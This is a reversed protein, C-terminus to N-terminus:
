STKERILGAVLLSIGTALLFIMPYIFASIITEYHLNSIQSNFFASVWLVIFLALCGIGLGMLFGNVFEREIEIGYILKRDKVTRSSSDTM